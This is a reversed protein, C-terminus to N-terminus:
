VVSRSHRPIRGLKTDFRFPKAWKAMPISEHTTTYLQAYAHGDAARWVLISQPPPLEIWLHPRATM